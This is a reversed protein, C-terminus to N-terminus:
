EECVFQGSVTFASGSGEILDTLEKVQINFSVQNGNKSFSGSVAVYTLSNNIDQVSIGLCSACGETFFNANVSTTGGSPTNNFLVMTLFLSNM